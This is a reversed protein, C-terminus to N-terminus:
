TKWGRARAVPSIGSSLLDATAQSSALFPAPGAMVSFNPSRNQALILQSASGCFNGAAVGVWSAGSVKTYGSAELLSGFVISDDPPKTFTPTQYPPECPRGGIAERTAQQHPPVPYDCDPVLTPPPQQPSQPLAPKPSQIPRAVARNSQANASTAASEALAVVAWIMAAGLISCITGRYSLDIKMTNRAGRSGVFGTAITVTVYCLLVFRFNNVKLSMWRAAARERKVAAIRFNAATGVQVVLAACCRGYKQLTQPLRGHPLAIVRHDRYGIM